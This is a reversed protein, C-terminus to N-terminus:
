HAKTPPETHITVRHLAPLAARVQTEVTEALRHAAELPMDPAVHCHMSLAYVGDAEARIDLDHWNNDPYLQEALRLAEHAVAHADKDYYRSATVTHAPEIHTVIRELGPVARRMAEEFRSAVAHAEGVSQEPAVEVHMEMMLGSATKTTIVEHVGLGLADAEARAILAYDPPADRAPLFHVLIDSLGDFRERLRARIEEAIAASHEATTPAAIYVDLDLHIDDTPGRSRVRPVERVGAVERAVASVAAPDLAARDVLIDASRRVIRWAALGILGVVILAAVADIWALGLSTAVLSILVIASALVDSRTHEADALLFESKLRKGEWREYTSVTLNGALTFIMVIFNIATIQPTSSEVLRSVSSKVIEWATLLLLGGIMMSALTEFRRHGYPHDADPPRAAIITSALGIVNSTADLSSHVGDAIMALSGTLLGVILKAIAVLVNAVMTLVLVRRIDRYRNARAM